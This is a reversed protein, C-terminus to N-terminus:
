EGVNVKILVHMAFWKERLIKSITLISSQIQIVVDYEYNIINNVIEWFNKLHQFILVEYLSM